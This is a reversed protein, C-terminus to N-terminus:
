LYINKQITNKNLGQESVPTNNSPMQPFIKGKTM